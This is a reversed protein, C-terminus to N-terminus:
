RSPVRFYIWERYEDEAKLKRIMEQAEARTAIGEHLVEKRNRYTDEIYWTAGKGRGKRPKLFWGRRKKREKMNVM